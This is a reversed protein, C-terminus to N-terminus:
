YLFGLLWIPLKAGYPTEIDDAFVFSNEVKAIQSFDKGAGGIEFTWKKDVLFDGQKKKYEIVHNYSLQNVVFTERVTGVNVRTGNFAYMLNSNDLFIKDPKQLRKITDVDSYLSCILKADTLHKLYAILTARNIGTLTSLKSIDVEFPSASSIVSLLSKIKRTNAVEVNCLQTLEVDIVFNAIQELIHFYNQKNKLYIPYYGNRLYDTFFELPRCVKNVEECFSGGTQLISELTVSPLDIGKCLKLFERYSLGQMEYTICRRSLDADGNLLNLLSSASVVVRLDPYLDYIEKLERSWNEYKHVEDFFIHVGGQKVFTSVLELLTHNAFYMTDLSCFLVKRSYTPYHSKIYQLMLTTKGVGRPGRLAIMQADWNISQMYSRVFQMSVTRLLIDQKEFLEKM